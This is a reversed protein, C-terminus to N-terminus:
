KRNKHHHRVVNHGILWGLSGGVLVDSPFHEQGIVRTLSLGTAASYLAFQTWPAPYEAALASAASWAVISHASPFSSNAATSTEFFHGRANDVNPRERLFVLKLAEDVIIADVMSEGTLIGAQRAHEDQHAHGFGYVAIPVAIWGGILVNSTNISAQNFSSDHSAVQTMTHQDTAFAVGTAAVLPLLWKLDRTRIRTPGSWIAGQDLLLHRPTNRITVDDPASPQPAPADPLAASLDNTAAVTKTQAPALMCFSLAFAAIPFLRAAINNPLQQRFRSPGKPMPKRVPSNFWIHIM